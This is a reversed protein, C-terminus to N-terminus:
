TSVRSVVGQTITSFFDKRFQKLLGKAQAPTKLSSYKGLYAEEQEKTLNAPLVTPMGPIFTKEKDDGGWRSRRKRVREVGASNSDSDNSNQESQAQEAPRKWGGTLLPNLAAAAATAAALATMLPMHTAPKPAEKEVSRSRSRSSSSKDHRDSHDNRENRDGRSNRDSRDNRDGRDGRDSRDNRDNREKRDNRESREKRDSSAPEEDRQTIYNPNLLSSQVNRRNQAARLAPNLRGLPTTNAGTTTSHNPM